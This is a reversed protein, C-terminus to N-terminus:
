QTKRWELYKQIKAMPLGDFYIDPTGILEYDTKLIDYGEDDDESLFFEIDPISWHDLTDTWDVEKQVRICGRIQPKDM